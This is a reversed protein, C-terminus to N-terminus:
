KEINDYILVGSVVGITSSIGGLLIAISLSANIQIAIVCAITVLICWPLFTLIIRRIM